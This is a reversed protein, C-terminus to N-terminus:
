RKARSTSSFCTGITCLPSSAATRVVLTSAFTVTGYARHHCLADCAFLREQGSRVKLVWHVAPERTMARPRLANAARWGKACCGTLRFWETQGLGARAWGSRLGVAARGCGPGLDLGARGLEAPCGPGARTLGTGRWGAARAARCHIRGASVIRCDEHPICFVQKHNLSARSM